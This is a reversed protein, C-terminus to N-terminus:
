SATREQGAASRRKMAREPGAAQLVADLNEFVRAAEKERKPVGAHPTSEALVEAAIGDAFDQAMVGTAFAWRGARVGQAFRVRGTGLEVPLIPEVKSTTDQRKM